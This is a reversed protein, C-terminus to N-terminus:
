ADVNCQVSGCHEHLVIIFYKIMETSETVMWRDVCPVHYHKNEEASHSIRLELSAATILHQRYSRVLFQCEDILISQISHCHFWKCDM